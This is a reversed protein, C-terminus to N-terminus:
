GCLNDSRKGDKGSGSGPLDFNLSTEYRCRVVLNSSWRVVQSTSIGGPKSIKLFTLQSFEMTAYGSSTFFFLFYFLSFLMFSLLYVTTGGRWM